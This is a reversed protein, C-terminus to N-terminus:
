LIAGIFALRLKPASLLTTLEPSPMSLLHPWPSALCASPLPQKKDTVLFVMRELPCPLAPDPEVRRATRVVGM